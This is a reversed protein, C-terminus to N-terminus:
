QRYLHDHELELMSDLELETWALALALLGTQETM